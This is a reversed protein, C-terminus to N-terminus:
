GRRSRGEGKEGACPAPGRESGPPSAASRPATVSKALQSVLMAAFMLACGVLGRCGLVEGLIVWGALAAVVTELSLIIAAHAPPAHRQGAVQLTYGIGVSVVGAYLIPITAPM